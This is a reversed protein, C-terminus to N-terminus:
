PWLAQTVVSFTGDRTCVASISNARLSRPTFAFHATIFNALGSHTTMEWGFRDWRRHNPWTTRIVSFFQRYVDQMSCGRSLPGNTSWPGSTTILDEVQSPGTKNGFWFFWWFSRFIALYKGDTQPQQRAEKDLFPSNSFSHIILHICPLSCGVVVYIQCVHYENKSEILFHDWAPFTMKM